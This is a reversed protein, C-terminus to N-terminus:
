WKLDGISVQKKNEKVTCSAGIKLTIVKNSIAEIKARNTSIIITMNEKSSLSKMLKLIQKATKLDVLDFIGDCLLIKPKKVLARALKVKEEESKSLKGAPSDKEKTLSLKKLLYDIDLTNKSLKKAILINQLVSLDDILGYKDSVLGINEKRYKLIDKEKLNSTNIGECIIDGSSQKELLSLLNIFTTKGSSSPGVVVVLDGQNIKINNYKLVIRNAGDKVYEKSVNNFEIYKM